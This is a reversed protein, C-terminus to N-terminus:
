RGLDYDKVWPAQPGDDDESLQLGLGIPIDTRGAVELLRAVIKARYRANGADTTVLKVDLEPSKLLMVLAWTDDIDGGIDADFIVPIRASSAGESRSEAAAWGQSVGLVLCLPLLGALLPVRLPRLAPGLRLVLVGTAISRGSM